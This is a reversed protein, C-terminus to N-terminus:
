SDRLLARILCAIRDIDADRLQTGSPLCLGREFLADAVSGGIMGSGAFVPQRHMPKWLPRSEINEAELALRISERTTGAERPDVELCTLWANGQGRPDQPMFRIGPAEGLLSQYRAFTRRRTAVKRDLDRLQGRGLAALLNSLRYNYGVERHEYHAAPERAQTALHRARDIWDQRESVLMGGSSTTIIKNGNFSFVGMAGFSGVARGQFTAGLAEAADEIIPVEYRACLPVIAEYDASQGYLDVVIVAKPLAGRAAREKLAEELLNPDMNWTRRESDVFFPRAGMYMVPNVSAAFTLTSVFVEDGAQVDLIQLALHIAATGSSLGAAHAVGVKEAVECEFADLDPGVPAIWNSDFAAMLLERECGNMHPPSLYIREPAESSM